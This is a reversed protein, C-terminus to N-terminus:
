SGITGSAFQSILRVRLQINENRTANYSFAAIGFIYNSDAGNQMTKGGSTGMVGDGAVFTKVKGSGSAFIPVVSYNRIYGVTNTSWSTAPYYGAVAKLTTYETNTVSVPISDNYDQNDQQVGLQGSGNLEFACVTMSAQNWSALSPNAGEMFGFQFGHIAGAGDNQHSVVDVAVGFDWSGTICCGTDWFAWSMYRAQNNTTNPDTIEINIIGTSDDYTWIPAGNPWRSSNVFNSSTTSLSLYGESGTLAGRSVTLAPTTADYGSRINM